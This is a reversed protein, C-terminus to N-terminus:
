HPVCGGVLIIPVLPGPPADPLACATSPRRTRSDPLHIVYSDLATPAAAPVRHSPDSSLESALFHCKDTRNAHAARRRAARAPRTLLRADASQEPSSRCRSTGATPNRIAIAIMRAPQFRECRDHPDRSELLM